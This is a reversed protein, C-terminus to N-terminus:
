WNFKARIIVNSFESTDHIKKSLGSIIVKSVGIVLIFSLFPSYDPFFVGLLISFVSKVRYMSFRMMDPFRIM